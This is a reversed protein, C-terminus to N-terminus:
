DFRIMPNKAPNLNDPLNDPSEGPGEKPEAGPAPKPEPKDQIGFVDKAIRGYEDIEGDLYSKFEKEVDEPKSPTFRALRAQIFKTQRDDLKRETKEREFLEGTARSKATQATTQAITAEHAKVKEGLTTNETKLADRQREAEVLARELKRIEFHLSENGTNKEARRESLAPDATFDDSTFLDSPQLNAERIMQRIEGATPKGMDDNERINSKAFAQLQGLLTAGAFGPVNVASNGLAIATVEDVDTVVLNGGPEYDYSVDAEISAVDLNLHRYEPFIYCVAVVSLGRWDDILKKAVVRGIPIRGDHANSDESHGNFIELGEAIKNYLKRVMSQFWRKVINGVGIMNGKAEGEHGVIFAKFLPNPDSRKIEAIKRAGVMAAIENNAMCRLKAQFRM